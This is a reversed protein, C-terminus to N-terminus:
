RFSKPVISLSKLLTSIPQARAVHPQARERLVRRLGRWRGRALELRLPQTWRWRRSQSRAHLVDILDSTTATIGRHIGPRHGLGPDDAALAIEEHLQRDFERDSWWGQPDLIPTYRWSHSQKRACLVALVAERVADTGIEAELRAV